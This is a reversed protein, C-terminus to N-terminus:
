ELRLALRELRGAAAAGALAAEFLARAETFAVSADALRGPRHMWVWGHAYAMEGLARNETVAEARATAQELAPGAAAPNVQVTHQAQALLVRLGLTPELATHVQATQDLMQILQGLPGIRRLTEAAILTARAARSLDRGRFREVVCLTNEVDDILQNLCAPGGAGALGALRTEGQAIIHVAHREEAAERDALQREAFQAVTSLLAFRPASRGIGDNSQILSRRRLASLVEGVWPANAADLHIVAEADKATFGGRFVSCQSLVSREWEDLLEWSWRIADHLM